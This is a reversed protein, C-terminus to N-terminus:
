KYQIYALVECLQDSIEQFKSAKCTCGKQQMQTQLFVAKARAEALSTNIVYILGKADQIDSLKYGFSWHGLNLQRDPIGQFFTGCNSSFIDTFIGLHCAGVQINQM